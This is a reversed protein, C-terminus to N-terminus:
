YKNQIMDRFHFFGRFICFAGKTFLSKSRLYNESGKKKKAIM